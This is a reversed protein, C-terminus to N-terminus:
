PPYYQELLICFYALFTIDTFHHSFSYLFKVPLLQNIDKWYFTSLMEPM